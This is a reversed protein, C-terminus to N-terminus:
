GQQYNREIVLNPDVVSYAGCSLIPKKAHELMIDALDSRMVYGHVEQKDYCKANHTPKGDVLGGPRFIEYHLTSTQLWVEALTKERVAFGFAKKARDSLTSWSNGCGLSTVLLMRSIGIKEAQNIINIQAHYNAQNGGLTSIITSDKGAITCAQAVLIADNADGILTKIGLANLKDANQQSRVVAICQHNLILAQKILEFGVGRSAGFILLTTM